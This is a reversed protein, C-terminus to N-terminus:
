AMHDLSSFVAPCGTFKGLLQAHHTLHHGAEAGDPLKTSELHLSFVTASWTACAVFIPDAFSIDLRLLM